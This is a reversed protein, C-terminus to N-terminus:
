RLARAEWIKKRLMKVDRNKGSHRLGSLVARQASKLIKKNSKLKLVKNSSNLWLLLLRSALPYRREKCLNHVLTAYTFDDKTGMYDYIRMARGINGEKCWGNIICNCAVIADRDMHDFLHKEATEVDGVKCLANISITHTYVDPQLGSKDLEVCLKDADDLKHHLNLLTNGSVTDLGIGSQILEEEMYKAEELNGMKVLAAIVTCYAFGDFTLGKVKMCNFDEFGKEPKRSKFFCKLATTYSVANPELDSENLEKWLKLADGFRQVKCFGHMLENYTVVQPVFGHRQIGRFFMRANNTYGARILGNIIINYTAQSPQLGNDLLEKYAKYAEDGRGQKFFCHMLTNYTWVDAYLQRNRMEVFVHLAHGYLRWRTAGALLSNYSVVDPSIGARQMRGLVDYGSQFGVFRCYGDILSNYTVVDPLIGLRIADVLVTEARQLLKAKCLSGITINLFCTSTRTTMRGTLNVSCELLLM